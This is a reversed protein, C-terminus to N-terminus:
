LLLGQGIGNAKDGVQLYAAQKVRVRKERKAIYIKADGGSCVM